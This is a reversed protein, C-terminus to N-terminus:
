APSPMHRRRRRAMLASAVGVGAVVPLARVPTPARGLLRSIAKFKLYTVVASTLRSTRSQKRRLRMGTPSGPRGHPM